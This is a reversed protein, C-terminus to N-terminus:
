AAPAEYVERSKIGVLRNEIHDIRGIGHQGAWDHIKQV